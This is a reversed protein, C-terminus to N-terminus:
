ISVRVHIEYSRKLEVLTNNVWGGFSEVLFFFEYPISCCRYAAQAGAAEAAALTRACFEFFM